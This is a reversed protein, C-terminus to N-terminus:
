NLFAYNGAKEWRNPVFKNLNITRLGGIPILIVKEDPHTKKIENLMKQQVSRDTIPKLKYSRGVLYLINGAATINQEAYFGFQFSKGDDDSGARFILNEAVVEPDYVDGAQKGTYFDYDTGQSPVAWDTSKKRDLASIADGLPSVTKYIRLNPNIPTIGIHYVHFDDREIRLIDQGSGLGSEGLYDFSTGTGAAMAGLQTYKYLFPTYGTVKFFYGRLGDDQPFAVILGGGVELLRDSLKVM